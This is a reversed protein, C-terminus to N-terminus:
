ERGDLAHHVVMWRSSGDDQAVHEILPGCVCDDGEDEHEILDDVPLVHVIV